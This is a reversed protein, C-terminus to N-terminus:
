EGRRLGIFGDPGAPHLLPTSLLRLLLRAVWGNLRGDPVLDPLLGRDSFKKLDSHIKKGAAVNISGAGEVGM